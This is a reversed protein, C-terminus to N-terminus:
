RHRDFADREIRNAWEAALIEEADSATTKQGSRGLSAFPIRRPQGLQFHATLAARVVESVSRGRRHAERQVIAALDDPLSITTRKM